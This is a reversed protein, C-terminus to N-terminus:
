ILVKPLLLKEVKDDTEATPKPVTFNLTSQPTFKEWLEDSHVKYTPKVKGLIIIM